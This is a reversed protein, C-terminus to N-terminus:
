THDTHPDKTGHNRTGSSHRAQDLAKEFAEPDEPPLIGLEIARRTHGAFAELHRIMAARARPGDRDLVAALIEEHANIIDHRVEGLAIVGSHTESLLNIIPELWMPFLRNGAAAALEVHFQHDAADFAPIVNFSEKMRSVSQALRASEEPAAGLAAREAFQPEILLRAELLAAFSLGQTRLSTEFARLNPSARDESVFLGRGPRVTILGRGELARIAERLIPRSVNFSEALQRESLLRDGAALGSLTEQEIRMATLQALNTDRM